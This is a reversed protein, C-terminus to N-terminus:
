GLRIAGDAPPCKLPSQRGCHGGARVGPSSVLAGALGTSAKAGRGRIHTRSGGGGDEGNGSYPCVFRSGAPLWALVQGADRDPPFVPYFAKVIRGGRRRLHPPPLPDHRRGRLDAPAARAGAGPRQRQAAPVPDARSRRVRAARRRAPRRDRGAESRSPRLRARRRPLRLEAAHLRPRRPHRGLRAPLARRPAPGRTSSPSWAGPPSSPSARAAAGRRPLPWRQSRWGRWTTPPATTRPSRCTPRCSATTPPWPWMTAAIRRRPSRLSPRHRGVDGEQPPHVEALAPDLVLLQAREEGLKAELVHRGEAGAAVDGESQPLPPMPSADTRVSRISARAPLDARSGRNRDEQAAAGLHPLDGGLSGKSGFSAVLSRAPLSCPRRGKGRRWARGRFRYRSTRARAPSSSRSASSPRRAAEIIQQQSSAQRSAELRSRELRFPLRVGQEAEIVRARHAVISCIAAM